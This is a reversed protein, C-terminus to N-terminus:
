GDHINSTELDELKRFVKDREKAFARAIERISIIGVIDGDRAVPLHRIDKTGMADVCDQLTDQVDALILENDKTCIESVTTTPSSKGQHVVKKLYDRETVIGVPKGKRCVVLAGVNEKVMKATAAFVSESEEVTWRHREKRQLVDSVRLQAAMSGTTHLHQHLFLPQQQQQLPNKRTTWPM